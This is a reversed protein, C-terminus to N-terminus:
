TLTKFYYNTHVNPTTSIFKRNFKLMDINVAM